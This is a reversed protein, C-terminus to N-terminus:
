RWDHGSEVDEEHDEVVLVVVLVVVDSLVNYVHMAELIVRQLRGELEIVHLGVDLEASCDVWVEGLLTRLNELLFVFENSLPLSRILLMGVFHSHSLQLGQDSEGLGHGTGVAGILDRWVVDAFDATEEAVAVDVDLLVVDLEFLQLLGDVFVPILFPQLVLGLLLRLKLCGLKLVGLGCVWAM